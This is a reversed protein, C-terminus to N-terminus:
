DKRAWRAVLGDGRCSVVVADTATQRVQESADQVQSLLGFAVDRPSRPEVTPPLDGPASGDWTLLVATTATIEPPSVRTVADRATVPMGASVLVAVVTELATTRVTAPADTTWTLTDTLADVAVRTPSERVGVMTDLLKVTELSIPASETLPDVALDDIVPRPDPGTSWPDAYRLVSRARAIWSAMPSLDGPTSESSWGSEVAATILDSFGEGSALLRSDFDRHSLLEVPLGLRSALQVIVAGEPVSQGAEWRSVASASCIGSALAAQSM